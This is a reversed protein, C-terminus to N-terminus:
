VQAFVLSTNIGGFAFNNNMARRITAERLEGRVYALPACRPDVHELNRTPAIFGGHMMAITFVSEIAGCGGLTHGTHGKTSSVPVRDGLAEVMAQSEAIDGVETGTAHANVYDLTDAGVGADRLAARMARAMGDPSPSTLHAGDCNSGYGLIEAWVRAGRAQAHEWSELVLTGAGEAVVMGDRDRDFPRPHTDARGTSAALMLDFVGAVTVHLEEAGGCIAIEERGHAVAMFGEGISQSASTCASCIPVVRGTIGFAQALNAACTHSMFRLYASSLLGEFRETTYLRRYYEEAAGTSGDTSGFLLACEPGQVQASTLGADAIAAETAAIALRAVKGTARLQKRGFNPLAPDAVAGALATRVGWRAWADVSVIGHAHTRLATAVETVSSGIPSVLGMGTIVVRRRGM